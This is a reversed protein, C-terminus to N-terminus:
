IVNLGEIRAIQALKKDYTLFAGFEEASALQVADAVYIGYKFVYNVAETVVKFSLPILKLQNLKVLLRSEGIFRTFVIRADEIIERKEYKDLVVAVEGINWVSFGIRVRGAHSEGYLEDVRDSYEEM